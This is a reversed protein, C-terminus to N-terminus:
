TNLITVDRANSLEKTFTSSFHLVLKKEEIKFYFYKKFIYIEIKAGFNPPRERTPRGLCNGLHGLGLAAQWRDCSVSFIYSIERM